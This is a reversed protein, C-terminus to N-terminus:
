MFTKAVTRGHRLKQQRHRRCDRGANGVRLARMLFAQM